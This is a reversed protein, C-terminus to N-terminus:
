EDDDDGDAADSGGDSGGDDDDGDGDTADDGDDNSTAAKSRLLQYVNEEFKKISKANRLIIERLRDNEQRIKDLDKRTSADDHVADDHVMDKKSAHYHYHVHTEQQEERPRYAPAEPQYAPPQDPQPTRPPSTLHTILAQNQQLLMQMMGQLHADSQVTVDDVHDLRQQRSARRRSPTQQRVTGGKSKPGCVYDIYKSKSADCNRGSM